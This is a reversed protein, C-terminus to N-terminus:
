WILRVADPVANITAPLTGMYDGDVQIHVTDDSEAEIGMCKEYRVDHFGLHRDTIVGGVYRLVDIRRKGKFICLDLLPETPSAEPTVRFYGGYFSSNGIVAMSGTLENKETKFRIIPPKYGTLAIIGSLIYAGKGTFRKVTDNVGFVTRGDFGIGAMLSFYRNNIRGLSIKKPSGTLALRVAQEIDEPIGLEKALVNATGAPILALAACKDAPLRRESKLLGNIVENFTGDGGAVLILGTDSHDRAFAAADGPKRTIFTTLSVENKLLEEIRKISRFAKHGAVPNVVLSADL